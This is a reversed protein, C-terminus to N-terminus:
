LHCARVQEKVQDLRLSAAVALLKPYKDLRYNGLLTRILVMKDGVAERLNNCGYTRAANSVVFTRCNSIEHVFYNWLSLQILQFELRYRSANDRLENFFL